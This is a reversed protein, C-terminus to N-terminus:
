AAGQKPLQQLTEAGGVQRRFLAALKSAERFADHEQLVRQAGVKAMQQL